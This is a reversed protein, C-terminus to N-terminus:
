NEINVIEKLPKSVAQPEYSIKVHANDYTIISVSTFDSAKLNFDVYIRTLNMDEDYSYVIRFADVFKKVGDYLKTGVDAFLKEFSTVGTNGLMEALDTIRLSGITVGNIKETLCRKLYDFGNEGRKASIVTLSTASPEELKASKYVVFNLLDEITTASMSLLTKRFLNQFEKSDYLGDLTITSDKDVINGINKLDDLSKKMSDIIDVSLRYGNYVITADANELVGENKLFSLLMDPLNSASDVFYDEAGVFFGVVNGLFSYIETMSAFANFTARENEIMTDIETQYDSSSVTTICDSAGNRFTTERDFKTVYLDDGRLFLGTAVKNQKSINDEVDYMLMYADFDHGGSVSSINAKVEYGVDQGKSEIKLVGSSLDSKVVKVVLDAKATETMAEGECAVMVFSIVIAFIISIIKPAKKM